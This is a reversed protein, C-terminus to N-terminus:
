VYNYYMLFYLKQILSFYNLRNLYLLAVDQRFSSYTQVCQDETLGPAGQVATYGPAGHVATYEPACHVATYEPAYHVATYEPVCHIATFEPVCHVLTFPSFSTHCHSNWCFSLVRGFAPSAVHGSFHLCVYASEDILETGNTKLM